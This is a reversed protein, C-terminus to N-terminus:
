QNRILSFVVGNWGPLARSRPRCCSLRSPEELVILIFDPFPLNRCLKQSLDFVSTSLQELLTVYFSVNLISNTCTVLFEQNFIHFVVEQV